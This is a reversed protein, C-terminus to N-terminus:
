NLKRSLSFSYVYGYIGSFVISPLVTLLLNPTAFYVNIAIVLVTQVLLAPLPVLVIASIAKHGRRNIRAVASAVNSVTACPHEPSHTSWRPMILALCFQRSGYLKFFYELMATFVLTMGGSYSGQVLAAKSLVVLDTSVLSNAYWSWAAYFGFAIVASVILRFVVM